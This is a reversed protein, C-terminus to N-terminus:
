VADKEAEARAQQLLAAIMRPAIVGGGARSYDTQMGLYSYLLASAGRAQAPAGEARPAAPVPEYAGTKGNLRTVVFAPIRQPNVCEMECFAVLGEETEVDWPRKEFDRWREDALLKDIRQNLVACKDCGKKGFVWIQYTKAM